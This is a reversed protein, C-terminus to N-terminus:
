SYALSCIYTISHSQQAMWPITTRARYPLHILWFAASLSRQMVEQRWIRASSSSKDQNGGITFPSMTVHVVSLSIRLKCKTM